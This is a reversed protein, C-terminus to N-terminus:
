HKRKLFEQVPNPKEKKPKAHVSTIRQNGDRVCSCEINDDLNICSIHLGHENPMQTILRLRKGPFQECIVKDGVKEMIPIIEM